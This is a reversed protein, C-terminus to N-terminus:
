SGGIIFYLEFVFIRIFRLLDVISIKDWYNDIRGNRRFKKAVKEM